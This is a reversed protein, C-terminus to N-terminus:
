GSSIREGRRFELVRAGQLDLPSAGDLDGEPSLAHQWHHFHLLGAKLQPLHVKTLPQPDLIVISSYKFPVQYTQHATSLTLPSICLLTTKHPQTPCAQVCWKQSGARGHDLM